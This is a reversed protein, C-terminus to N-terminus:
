PGLVLRVVPHRRVRQGLRLRGALRSVGTVPQPSGGLRRFFEAVGRDMSGEFDFTRALRSGRQMAEWLLLYRAGSQDDPERAGILYYASHEDYAVFCAAVVRGERKAGLVVGRDKDSASLAVRRLLGEGYGTRLGKAAMTSEALRYLEQADLEAVETDKQASRVMRRAGPPMRQWRVAEEAALPLRFTAGTAGSCGAWYWPLLPPPEPSLNLRLLDHRPLRGLLSEILENYQHVRSSDSSETLTVRPALYPTLPPNSLAILRRRRSVRYSLEARGGKADEVTTRGWAGPAVADLWWDESFLLREAGPSFSM